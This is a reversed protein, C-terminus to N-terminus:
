RRVVSSLGLLRFFFAYYTSTALVVVVALMTVLMVVLFVLAWPNSGPRRNSTARSTTADTEHLDPDPEPSEYPNTSVEKDSTETRYSM